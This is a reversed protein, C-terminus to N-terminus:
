NTGENTQEDLIGYNTQKHESNLDNEYYMKQYRINMKKYASSNSMNNNKVKSYFEPQEKIYIKSIDYDIENEVLRPSVHKPLYIDNNNKIKRRGMIMSNNLFEKEKEMTNNLEFNSKNVDGILCSNNINANKNINSYKSNIIRKRKYIGNQIPSSSFYNINANTNNNINNNNENYKSSTFAESIYYKHPSNNYEKFNNFNEYNSIQPQSKNLYDEKKVITLNINNNENNSNMNKKMKINYIKEENFSSELHNPHYKVRKRQYSSNNRQHEYDLDKNNDNKQNTKNQYGQNTNPEHKQNLIKWKLFYNEKISNNEIRKKIIILKQMKIKSEIKIKNNKIISNIKTDNYPSIEIINIKKEIIKNKNEKEDINKDIIEKMSDVINNEINDGIKNNNKISTEKNIYNEKLKQLIIKNFVINRYKSFNDSIYKFKQIDRLSKIFLYANQKYLHKRIQANLISICRLKNIIQKKINKMKWDKLWQLTAKNKLKHAVRNSNKLIGKQNQNKKKKTKKMIKTKSKKIRKKEENKPLEMCSINKEPNEENKLNKINVNQVFSKFKKKRRTELSKARITDINKHETGEKDNDIAINNTNQFSNDLKELDISSSKKLNNKNKNLSFIQKPCHFRNQHTSIYELESNKKPKQNKTINKNIKNINRSSEVCYSKYKNLNTDLLGSPIKKNRNKNLKKYKQFNTNKKSLKAQNLSNLNNKSGFKFNKIQNQSKNMLFNSSTKYFKCPKKNNININTNFNVSKKARKEISNNKTGFANHINKETNIRETEFGPKKSSLILQDKKPNKEIKEVFIVNKNKNEDNLEGHLNNKNRKKIYDSKLKKTKENKSAKNIHHMNKTKIIKNKDFTKLKHIINKKIIFDNWKNFYYKKKQVIKDKILLFVNKFLHKKAIKEIRIVGYVINEKLELVKLLKIRYLFGRLYKQIKIIQFITKWWLQLYSIKDFLKKNEKIKNIINEDFNNNSKENNNELLGNVSETDDKSKFSNIKKLLNTKAKKHKTNKNKRNAIPKIKSEKDINLKHSSKM